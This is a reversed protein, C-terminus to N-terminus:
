SRQDRQMEMLRRAIAEVDGDTLNREAVDQALWPAFEPLNSQPHTMDTTVYTPPRPSLPIPFPGHSQSTPLYVPPSHTEITRPPDSSSLHGPGLVLSDLPPSRSFMLASSHQQPPSSSFLARVSADTTPQNATASPGFPVDWTGSARRLTDNKSRGPVVSTNRVEFGHM